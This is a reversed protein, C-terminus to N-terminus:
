SQYLCKGAQGTLLLNILEQGCHGFTSTLKASPDDMDAQVLDTGRSFALSMVLLVVGGPQRYAELPPVGGPPAELFFQTVAHALRTIRDELGEVTKQRKPAAGGDESAVASPSITYVNLTSSKRYPGDWPEFDEWCLTTGIKSPHPICLRVSRKEMSEGVDTAAPPTLSARALIMAMSMALSKKMFSESMDAKGDVVQNTFSADGVVPYELPDRGGFLLIRLLEAQVAALVGCPGGHAQTLGWPGHNSMVAALLSDNTSQLDLNGEHFDKFNISQQVWRLKDENKTESSDWMASHFEMVDAPEETKYWEAVATSFHQPKSHTPPSDDNEEKQMSLSLASALEEPNELDDDDDDADDDTKRAGSTAVSPHEPTLSLALAAQLHENDDDDDNRYKPPTLIQVTKGATTPPTSPADPMQVSLPTSPATTTTSLPSHRELAALRRQRVEAPTLPGGTSGGLNHGQPHQHNDDMKQFPYL